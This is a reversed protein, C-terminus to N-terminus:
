VQKLQDLKVGKRQCVKRISFSQRYLEFSLHLTKLKILNEVCEILAYEDHRGKLSLQVLNPFVLPLNEIDAYLLRNEYLCLSFSLDVVSSMQQFFLFSFKFTRISFFSLDLKTLKKLQSISFLGKQILQDNARRLNMKLRLTELKQLVNLGIMFNVNAVSIILSLSKLETFNHIRKLSSTSVTTLAKTFCLKNIQKVPLSHILSLFSEDSLEFHCVFEELHILNQLCDFNFMHIATNGNNGLHLKTLLKFKNATIELDMQLNTPMSLCRLCEANFYHFAFEGLQQNLNKSNRSIFLVSKLQSAYRRFLIKYLLEDLQQRVFCCRATIETINPCNNMIMYITRTWKGAVGNKMSSKSHSIGLTIDLTKLVKGGEQICIEFAKRYNSNSKSAIYYKPFPTISSKKEYEKLIPGVYLEHIGTLSLQRWKRNLCRFQFREQISFHVLIFDSIIENPLDDLNIMLLNYDPLHTSASMKQLKKLM